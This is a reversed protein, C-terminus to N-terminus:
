VRASFFFRNRNLQKTNPTQQYPFPVIKWSATHQNQRRMQEPLSIHLPSDLKWSAPCIYCHTINSNIRYQYKIAYLFVISSTKISNLYCILPLSHSYPSLNYSTREFTQLHTWLEMSVVPFFAKIEMETTDYWFRKKTIQVFICSCNYM